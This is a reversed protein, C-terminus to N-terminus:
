DDGDWNLDQQSRIEDKYSKRDYKSEDKHPQTTAHDPTIKRTKIDLKKGFIKDYNDGYSKDDQNTRRGSGKGGHWNSKKM